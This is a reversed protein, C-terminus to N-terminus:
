EVRMYEEWSLIRVEWEVLGAEVPAMRGVTAFASPVIAKHM